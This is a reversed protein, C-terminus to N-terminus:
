PGIILVPMKLLWLNISIELVLFNFKISIAMTTM